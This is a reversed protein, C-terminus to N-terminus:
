HWTYMHLSFAYLVFPVFLCLLYVSLCVSLCVSPVWVAELSGLSGWAERAKQILETACDIAASLNTAGGAM